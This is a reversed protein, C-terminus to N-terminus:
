YGGIQSRLNCDLLMERLFVSSPRALLELNALTFLAAQTVRRSRILDRRIKARTECIQGTLAANPVLDRRLDKNTLLETSYDKLLKYPLQTTQM